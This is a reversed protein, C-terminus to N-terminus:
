IINQYCSKLLETILVTGVMQGECTMEAKKWKLVNTSKVFFQSIVSGHELISM